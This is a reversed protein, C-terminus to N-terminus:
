PLPAIIKIAGNEKLVHYKIDDCNKWFNKIGKQFFRKDFFGLFLTQNFNPNMVQSIKSSILM